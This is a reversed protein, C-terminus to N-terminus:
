KDDRSLCISLSFFVVTYCMASFNRRNWYMQTQAYRCHIHRHSYSMLSADACSLFLLLFDKEVQNQQTKRENSADNHVVREVCRKLFSASFFPFYFPKWLVLLLCFYFFHLTKVSIKITLLFANISSCFFSVIPQRHIVM